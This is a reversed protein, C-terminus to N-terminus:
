VSSQYQEIFEDVDAFYKGNQEFWSCDKEWWKIEMFFEIQKESFRYRIIKAPVGAVIAYPAVDKTVIAGTGIIAGDGITVGSKISVGQGIWVDNGIQVSYGAKDCKLDEFYNNDVFTHLTHKKRYFCPSTSVMNIPHEFLSINVNEGISSFRGVKVNRLVSNKHVYSGYGLECSHLEGDVYNNGEFLCDRDVISKKSLIVNKKKIEKKFRQQLYCEYLQDILRM